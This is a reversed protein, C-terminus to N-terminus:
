LWRKYSIAQTKAYNGTKRNKETNDALMYNDIKCRRLHVM